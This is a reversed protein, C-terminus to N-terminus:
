SFQVPLLRVAEERRHLHAAVVEERQHSSGNFATQGLLPRLVKVRPLAEELQHALDEQCVAFDRITQHLTYRGPGASALLGADLLNDVVELSIGLNLVAEETCPASLRALRVLAWRTAPELQCYSPEIVSQLSVQTGSSFGAQQELPSTPMGLQIRAQPYMLYELAARWRRPQGCYVQTQLYKGMIQLVLPLGGSLRVLERMEAPERAIIEPVFRALLQLSESESLEAVVRAGTNAFSLALTPFRTTLLYACNPGGIKFALAEQCSWADDIILLMKRVGIRAHLARMWEEISELHAPGDEALDLLAGWRRLEGPVNAAPGLSVWLIGDSFHQQLVSSQALEAALATKGVGPLGSLAVCSKSTCLSQELQSLEHARGTLGESLPLPLAPDHLPEEPTFPLPGPQTIYLHASGVLTQADGRQWLGLEEAPMQFLACLKQLFCASPFASGREWRGITKPDAVGIQEAVYLRSWGRRQREWRLLENPSHKGTSQSNQM